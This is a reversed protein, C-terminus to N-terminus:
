SKRVVLKTLCKPLIEKELKHVFFFGFEIYILSNPLIGVAIEHCFM